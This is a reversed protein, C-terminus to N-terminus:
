PKLFRERLEKRAYDLLIARIRTRAEGERTKMAEALLPAISPGLAPLRENAAQRGFPDDKLFQALYEEFLKRLREREGQV